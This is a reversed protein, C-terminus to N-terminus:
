SPLVAFECQGDTNMGYIVYGTSYKVNRISLKFYIYIYIYHDYGWCLSEVYKLFFKGVPALSIARCNLASAERGGMPEMELVWM